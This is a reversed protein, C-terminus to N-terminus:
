YKRWRSQGDDLKDTMFKSKETPQKEPLKSVKGGAWVMLARAIVTDDHMGEPANYTSRGTTPSIKREYAELEANWLENKQFQWEEREFTLALNEILPPKTGATTQFGFKGDPGKVIPVHDALMQDIIPEGMANREPLVAVVHYDKILKKLREQQSQYDVKLMRERAIEVKCNACGISVCMPDVHKGWDVGAVIYHRPHDLAVDVKAPAGMCADINRFVTGENELFEALIEQKYAEDTMDQTLEALAEESLYPNQHSTFHWYAWRGSTDAKARVYLGHFHNRRRPTSIFVADGNNDLLMPAGVEDWASMAMMAFEELIMLDAYDGRMTDANWATKARIRSGPIELIRRTENKYIAGTAIGNTFYSKINEWFADTQDQTPAAYLIRRGKLFEQAALMSVGTTKGGRRGSVIVKRKAPSEIFERQLDHPTPLFSLLGQNRRAKEAKM